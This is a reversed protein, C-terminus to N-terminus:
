ILTVTIPTSTGLLTARTRGGPAGSAPCAGPSGPTKPIGTTEDVRLENLARDFFLRANGEYICSGVLFINFITFDTHQLLITSDFNPLRGTFGEYSIHWPLTERNARARAGALLGAGTCGAENVDVRTIYGVLSLRSKVITRYHFSGELTVDCTLRAEGNFFVLPRFDARINSNSTSLNRAS